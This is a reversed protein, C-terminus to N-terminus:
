VKAQEIEPRELMNLHHLQSSEKHFFNFSNRLLINVSHSSFVKGINTYLINAHSLPVNLSNLSLMERTLSNM